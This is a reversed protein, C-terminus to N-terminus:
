KVGARRRRGAVIGVVSSPGRVVFEGLDVRLECSVVEEGRM